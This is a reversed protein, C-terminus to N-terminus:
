IEITKIEPFLVLFKGKYQPALSKIIYDTFNHALILIYDPTNTKLIKRDTIQIGTGPIYKNQKL